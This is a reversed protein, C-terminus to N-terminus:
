ATGGAVEPPPIPRRDHDSRLDSKDGAVGTCGGSFLGMVEIM